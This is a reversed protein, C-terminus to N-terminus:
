ESICGPSGAVGHASRFTLTFARIVTEGDIATQCMGTIVGQVESTTNRDISINAFTDEANEGTAWVRAGSVISLNGDFMGSQGASPGAISQIQGAPALPDAPNTLSISFFPLLEGSFTHAAYDGSLETDGTVSMEWFCDVAEGTNNAPGGSGVACGACLFTLPLLYPALARRLM